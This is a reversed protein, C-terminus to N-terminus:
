KKLTIRKIVDYLICTPPPIFLVPPPPVYNIWANELHFSLRIQKPGLILPCIDKIGGLARTIKYMTVQYLVYIIFVPLCLFVPPVSYFRSVKSRTSTYKAHYTQETPRGIITGESSIAGM